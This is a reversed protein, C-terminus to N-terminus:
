YATLNVENVSEAETPNVRASKLSRCNVPWVEPTIAFTIPTDTVSPVSGLVKNTWYSVEPVLLVAVANVCPSVICTAVVKDPVDVVTEATTVEHWM